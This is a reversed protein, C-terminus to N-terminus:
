FSSARETSPSAHPNGEVLSGRDTLHKVLLDRQSVLAQFRELTGGTDPHASKALRRFAVEVDSRIYGVHLGFATAAAHFEWWFSEAESATRPPSTRSRLHSFWV